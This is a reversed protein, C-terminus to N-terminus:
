SCTFKSKDAKAGHNKIDVMLAQSLTLGFIFMGLVIFVCAFYLMFKVRRSQDPRDVMLKLLCMGAVVCTVVSNCIKSWVLLSGM